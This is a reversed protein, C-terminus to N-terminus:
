EKESIVKLVPRSDPNAPPNQADVEQLIWAEDLDTQCIPILRIKANHFQAERNLKLTLEQRRNRNLKGLFASYQIRDLGFDLCVNSIRNRVRDNEIDYIVLCAVEPAGRGVPLPKLMGSYPNKRRRIVNNTQKTMIVM